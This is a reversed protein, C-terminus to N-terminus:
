KLVVFTLTRGTSNNRRYSFFDDNDFTDINSFYIEKVGSEKLIDFLKEETDFFLKDDKKIIYKEDFYSFFEEKVEYNKVTIMPGAYAILEPDINKTVLKEKILDIGKTIIGNQLGRWGAHFVGIISNTKDTIVVNGCDATTVSIIKNKQTTIFGDGVGMVLKPSSDLDIITSSHTQELSFLEFPEEFSNLFLNRNQLVNEISDKTNLGLNLSKFPEPSVGGITTTVGSFIKSNNVFELYKIRDKQIYKFM